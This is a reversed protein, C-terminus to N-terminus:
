ETADDAAAEGEFDALRGHERSSRSSAELRALQQRLRTAAVQPPIPEVHLALDLRGPAAILPERWGLPVEAPDGTVAVTACVGDGVRLSRARVEVADPGFPGPPGPRRRSGRTTVIGGPHHRCGAARLARAAMPRLRRRDGRGG